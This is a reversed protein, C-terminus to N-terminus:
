IKEKGRARDVQQKTKEKIKNERKGELEKPKLFKIQTRPHQKLMVEAPTLGTVSCPTHLYSIKYLMHSMKLKTSFKNCEFVQKVLNQKVTNVQNEM